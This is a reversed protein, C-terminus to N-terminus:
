AAQHLDQESEGSSALCKEYDALEKDITGCCGDFIVIGLERWLKLEELTAQHTEARNTTGPSGGEHGPSDNYGNPAAWNIPIGLRNAEEFAPTLDVAWRCNFGLAVLGVGCVADPIRDFTSRDPLRKGGDAPRFSVAYNIDYKQCLKAFVKASKLSAETELGITVPRGNAGELIATIQEDFITTAEKIEKHTTPSGENTESDGIPRVSALVRTQPRESQEIADFTLEVGMVTVAHALHGRRVRDFVRRSTNWTPTTVFDPKAVAIVNSFHAGVKDRGGETLLIAASGLEADDHLGKTFRSDKTPVGPYLGPNGIIRDSARHPEEEPQPLARLAEIALLQSM